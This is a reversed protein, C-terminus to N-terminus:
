WTYTIQVGGVGWKNLYSYKLKIGSYNLKRNSVIVADFASVLHNLMLTSLAYRSYHKFQNSDYRLGRYYDKKKTLIVTEVNQKQISYWNGKSDFPNDYNDDWGGVFQDYKGINEYFDRDRIVSIDSWEHIKLLETLNDTYYYSGNINLTLKHTGILVDRWNNSFIIKTNDYWRELSWHADGFAEFDHRIKEANNVLQVSSILTLTEVSLFFISKWLHDKNQVQGWGPILLSKFMAKVPVPIRVTDQKVPYNDLNYINFQSFSLSLSFFLLLFFKLNFDLYFLLIFVIKLAM